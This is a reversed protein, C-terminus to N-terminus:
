RVYSQLLRPLDHGGSPDLRGHRLDFRM